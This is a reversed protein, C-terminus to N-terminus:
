DVDMFIVTSKLGSDPNEEKVAGSSILQQIAMEM